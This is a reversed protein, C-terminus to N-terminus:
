KEGRQVPTIPVGLDPIKDRLRQDFFIVSEVTGRDCDIEMTVGQTARRVVNTDNTTQWVVELRPFTPMGKIEPPRNFRPKVDTHLFGAPFGFRDATQRALAAAQEESLRWKGAYDRIRFPLKEGSFFRRPSGASIIGNFQYIFEWNDKLTMNVYPSGLNNSCYFHKVDNTTIPLHAKLGLKRVWDEADRLVVPVLRSAYERNMLKPLDNLARWPSNEPLPDPQVNVVPGFSDLAVLGRILLLELAKRRADVEVETAPTGFRPDLWRIRYVPIVNTLDVTPLPEVIPDVDALVDELKYGLKRIARRAFKVAEQQSMKPVGYYEPIHRPDQLNFYGHMDRFADVHGDNFGFGLGNTLVISGGIQGKFHPRPMAIFREIQSMLIPTHIPLDLRRAVDSYYPLLTKLVANSYAPSWVNIWESGDTFDIDSGQPRTEGGARLLCALASASRATAKMVPYPVNADVWPPLTLAHYLGVLALFVGLFRPAKGCQAAKRVPTKALPTM